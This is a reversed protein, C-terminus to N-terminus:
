RNTPSTSNRRSAFLLAAALGTLAIVILGDVGPSSIWPTPENQVLVNTDLLAAAIANSCAHMVVAPWVSGTRLRIEGYVIAAVSTGLMVRPALTWLSEDSFDWFITMYPLHWAGWIVGVIIHNTLRGVGAADLRPTLYGRWGFEEAIATLTFPMLAVLAIAAFRLPASNDYTDWQELVLGSTAAVLMVFPYFASSFEYWQRNERYRPRLGADDFGDGGKWRLITAVAIPVLIWILQGPGEGVRHGVAHDLLPGLWGLGLVAAAYAVIRSPTPAPIARRIPPDLEATKM